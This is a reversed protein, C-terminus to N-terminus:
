TMSICNGRERGVRYPRPDHLFRPITRSETRHAFERPGAALFSLLLFTKTEWHCKNPHLPVHPERKAYTLHIRTHTSAGHYLDERSSVAWHSQRRRERRGDGSAGDEDRDRDKRRGPEDWSEKESPDCHRAAEGKTGKRDAAGMKKKAQENRRENPEESTRKEGSRRTGRRKETGTRRWKVPCSRVITCGTRCIICRGGNWGEATAATAGERGGREAFFEGGCM